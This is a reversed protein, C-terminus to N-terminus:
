PIGGGMSNLRMRDWGKRGVGRVVGRRLQGNQGPRAAEVPASQLMQLRAPRWPPTAQGRDHREAADRHGALDAAHARAGEARDGALGAGRAECAAVLKARAERVELDVVVHLAGDVSTRIM